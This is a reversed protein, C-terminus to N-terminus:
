VGFNKYFSAIFVGITAIYTTTCVFCFVKLKFYLLYAFWVTMVAGASAILFTLKYLGLLTCIFIVAYFIMGLITNSIGLTKSYESSLAKTCSARDSIDCAPKYAADKKLKQEIFFGYLSAAFGIVAFILIIVM